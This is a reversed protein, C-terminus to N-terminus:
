GVTSISRQALEFGRCKCVHGGKMKVGAGACRKDIHEKRRHGCTCFDRPERHKKPAPAPPASPEELLTSKKRRLSKFTSTDPAPMAALIAPADIDTAGEVVTPGKRKGGRRVLKQGDAEIADPAPKKKAKKRTPAPAITSATPEDEVEPEEVDPSEQEDDEDGEASDDNDKAGAVMEAIIEKARQGAFYREVISGAKQEIPDDKTPDEKKKGKGVLGKATMKFSYEIHTPGFRNKWSQLTREVGDEPFLTVLTDVDHQVTMLGAFDHEKTMHAILFVPCKFKIAIKKFRRAIVVAAHMDKGCLASVSDLVIACPADEKLLNEDIDAGPGIETLVRFAAINPIGFREATAKIEEPAQEASLYYPSKGTIEGIKSLVQLLLSTKGSGAPGGILTISTPVFGGGWAGDWLGGTVIRETTGAKIQDLKITHSKTIGSITTLDGPTFRGCGRCRTKDYELADGCFQCRAM